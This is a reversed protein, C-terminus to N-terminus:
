AGSKGERAAVQQLPATATVSMQTSCVESMLIRYLERVNGQPGPVNRNRCDVDSFYTINTTMQDATILALIVWSGGQGPTDTQVYLGYKCTPKERNTKSSRRM